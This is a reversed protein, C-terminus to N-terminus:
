ELWALYLSRWWRGGQFKVGNKIQDEAQFLMTVPPADIADM